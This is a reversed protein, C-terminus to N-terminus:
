WTALPTAPPPSSGSAKDFEYDMGVREVQGAEMVPRVSDDFVNVVPQDIHLHTCMLYDVQEPKVGPPHNRVGRIQRHEVQM